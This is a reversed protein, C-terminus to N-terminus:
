PGAADLLAATLTKTIEAYQKALEARANLIAAQQDDATYGSVSIEVGDPTKITFGEVGVDSAPITVKARVMTGDPLHKEFDYCRSTTCGSAAVILISVLTRM